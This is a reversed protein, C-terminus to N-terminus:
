RHLRRLHRVVGPDPHSYEEGGLIWLMLAENMELRLREWDSENADSVGAGHTVRSLSPCPGQAHPSGIFDALDRKIVYTSVLAPRSDEHGLRGAMGPVRALWIREAGSFEQSSRARVTAIIGLVRALRM